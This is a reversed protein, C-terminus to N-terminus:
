ENMKLAKQAENHILNILDENLKLDENKYIIHKLNCAQLIKFVSKDREIWYPNNYHQPGNLEIIVLPYYKDKSFICFDVNRYLEDNRGFTNTDIITQLNVQPTIIFDNNLRDRVYEFFQM